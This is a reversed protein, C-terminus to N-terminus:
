DISCYNFIERISLFVVFFLKERERKKEKLLLVRTCGSMNVTNRTPFFFFFLSTYDHKRHLEM